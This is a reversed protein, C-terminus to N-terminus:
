PALGEGDNGQGTKISNEIKKLECAIEYARNAANAPHLQYGSKRVLAVVVERALEHFREDIGQILKVAPKKTEKTM